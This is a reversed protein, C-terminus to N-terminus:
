GLSLGIGTTTFRIKKNPQYPLQGKEEIEKFSYAHVTKNRGNPTVWDLNECVTNALETLSLKPFMRIIEKVDQLEQETFYRGSVLVQNDYQKTM